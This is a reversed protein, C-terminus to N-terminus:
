NHAALVRAVERRHLKQKLEVVVFSHELSRANLPFGILLWFSSDGRKAM